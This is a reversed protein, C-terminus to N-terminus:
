DYRIAEAPDTRSARRAPLWTALLAVLALMGSVAGFTVPDLASIGFLLAEMLRTLGLAGVLGLLIGAGALAMGQRLVMRAVEGELAGMAMRIGIERTRQSVTYAVVGYIGIAGLLLAVGAAIALMVLTFSTRNTSRRM